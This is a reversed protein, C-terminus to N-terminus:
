PVEHPLYARRSERWLHLASAAKWSFCQHRDRPALCQRRKKYRRRALRVAYKGYLEATGTFPVPFELFARVCLLTMADQVELHASTVTHTPWDEDNPSVDDCDLMARRMGVHATTIEDPWWQHDPRTVDIPRSM